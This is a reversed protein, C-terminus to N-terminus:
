CKRDGRGIQRGGEGERKGKKERVKEGKTSFTSGM